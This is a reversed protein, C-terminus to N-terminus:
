KVRLFSYGFRQCAAKELEERVSPDAISILARARQALDKGRLYVIGNETVVYQAQARTTVVGAGSTLVPRIKSQGKATTSTIAIFTKGGESLSGGYMFDHQGGVGSFMREGISDACIQGTLDIELASNIAMVKPNQSIRFPHNTWAVDKVIIDKNYDMFDYLRKSGVALAAVTKWPMVKKRSNNIVGSQILPVVGDTLAETHLGLDKHGTLASLVANPIAGVGIQLTAGDPIQEAIFNGIRTEKENPISMPIEVIPEDVEVCADIQSLHILADGYSYPVNKNIQAIIIKSTEVASVALDASLGYSCYGNKDPLSVNLLTVDLPVLRERFLAPVEGLFSPICQGEGRNIAGRVSPAIFLSVPYFSELLEKKCYPSEGKAIAFGSYLEVGKLEGARKVVASLLVEPISGSGQVYIKDYSKILKVAEDASVYHPM